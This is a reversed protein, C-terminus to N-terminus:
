IAAEQVVFESLFAEVVFQSSVVALLPDLLSRLLAEADADGPDDRKGPNEKGAEKGSSSGASNFPFRLFLDGSAECKGESLPDLLGRLLKEAAAAGGPAYRKVVTRFKSFLFSLFAGIKDKVWGLAEGVKKFASAIIGM